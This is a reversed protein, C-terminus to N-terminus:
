GYSHNSFQHLHTKSIVADRM